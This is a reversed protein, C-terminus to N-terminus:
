CLNIFKLMNKNKKLVEANVMYYHGYYNCRVDNVANEFVPFFLWGNEVKMFNSKRKLKDIQYLGSMCM